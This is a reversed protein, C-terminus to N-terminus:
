GSPSGVMRRVNMPLSGSDLGVPITALRQIDGSLDV